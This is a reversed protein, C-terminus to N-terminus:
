PLRAILYDDGSRVVSLAAVAQRAAGELRDVGAVVLYRAGERRCQALRDALDPKECSLAWGPRDCCYLLDLTTGHLTAVPEDPATLEQAAAAAAVVSRDEEAIVLAPKWALPLSFGMGVILVIAGWTLSPRVRRAIVEWGLGALVCLPPLIVLYYYNMEHFKRPMAVVLAAMSLLWPWHRWAGRHLLGLAALALGIPTLAVGALNRLARMYFDTRGLLPHPFSHAEASGRLSYYVSAADPGAPDSLRWVHALWLAAPLTAALLAVASVANRMRLVPFFGERYHRLRGEGSLTVSDRRTAAMAALPLLLVLMYVKTLLLAALAATAAALMLWRHEELWATWCWLAALTFFVLSPEIMFGQGYLISVPSLALVVSAAWAATPGRWRRVLLFLMAVSATSFAISVVRGWVDLSGGLLRWLGGALYASIPLEVLHMAQQGGALCDLRPTWFSARGLAWNRAAMANVVHRTAFNGVLPRAVGPLRVAATLMLLVALAVLVRRHAPRSPAPSLERRAAPM